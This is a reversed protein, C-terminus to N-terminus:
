DKTSIWNALLDVLNMIKSGSMDEVQERIMIIGTNAYEEAITLMEDQDTLVNVKGTEALALARILPVDENQSFQAWAFISEKEKGLKVRKKEMFGIFAALMFLNKMSEFPPSDEREANEPLKTLAVYIPHHSADVRIRDRQRLELPKETSKDKEMVAFTRQTTPIPFKETETSIIKSQPHFLEDRLGEVVIKQDPANITDLVEAILSLRVRTYEIDLDETSPHAAYNRAQAIIRLKDQVTMDGTLQAGLVEQKWNKSILSPFDGIDIAAEISGSNTQLFSQFDNAKRVPLADSIADELTKGKVRKLSRTIFVRMADRYIDLAKNLIDRNPREIVNM